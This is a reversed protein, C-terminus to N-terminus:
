VNYYVTSFIHKTKMHSFREKVVLVLLILTCVDSGINKFPNYSFISEQFQTPVLYPISYTM